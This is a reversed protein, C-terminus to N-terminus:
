ACSITTRDFLGRGDVGSTAPKSSIALMIYLTLILLLYFYFSWLSHLFFLDIPRVKCIFDMTFTVSDFFTWLFLCLETFIVLRRSYTRPEATWIISHPSALTEFPFLALHIHPMRVPTTNTFHIYAWFIVYWGEEVTPAGWSCWTYFYIM